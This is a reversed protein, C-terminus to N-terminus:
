ELTEEHEGVNADQDLDIEDVEDLTVPGCKVDDLGVDCSMEAPIRVGTDGLM